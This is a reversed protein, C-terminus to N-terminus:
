NGSGWCKAGDHGYKNLESFDFGEPHSQPFPALANTYGWDIQYNSVTTGDKRLKDKDWDQHWSTGVFLDEMERQHIFEHVM